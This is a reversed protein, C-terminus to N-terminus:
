KEKLKRRDSNYFYIFVCFHFSSNIIFARSFSKAHLNAGFMSLNAEAQPLARPSYVYMSSYDHSQLSFCVNTEFLTNNKSYCYILYFSTFIM